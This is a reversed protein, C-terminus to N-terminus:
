LADRLLSSRAAARASFFRSPLSPLVHMGGKQSSRTGLEPALQATRQRAVSSAPPRTHGLLSARLFPLAAAPITHGPM